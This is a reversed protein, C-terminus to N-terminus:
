RPVTGLMRVSMAPQRSGENGQRPVSSCKASCRSVEAMDDRLAQTDSHVLSLGYAQSQLGVEIRLDRIRAMGEELRAVRAALEEVSVTM